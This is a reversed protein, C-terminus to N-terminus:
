QPFMLQLFQMHKFFRRHHLPYQAFLYKSVVCNVLASHIGYNFLPPEFNLEFLPFVFYMCINPSSAQKLVEIQFGLPSTLM